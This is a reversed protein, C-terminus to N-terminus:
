HVPPLSVSRPKFGAPVGSPSEFLHSTEGMYMVYQRRNHLYSTFLRMLSESFGMRSLKHLLIGHSVKDFANQFDTYVVDVQTRPYKDLANHLYHTFQLLNTTVSRGKVFGHQNPSILNRTQPYLKNFIIMEFIKSPIPQM